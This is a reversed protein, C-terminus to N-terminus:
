GKLYGKFPEVVEAAVEKDAYRVADYLAAFREDKEARKCLEQPTLNKANETIEVERELMEHYVHRVRQAPTLSGWRAPRAFFKKVRKAVDDRFQRTMSQASMLQESEEAYDETAAASFNSFWRKLYESLARIAKYLVVAMFALLAILAVTVVTYIIVNSLVQVWKPWEFAEEGLLSWDMQPDTVQEASQTPTESPGGVKFLAFFWILAAKLADGIAKQLPGFFVALTLIGLFGWTMMQNGRVMRKAQNGANNRVSRFNVLVITAVVFFYLAYGVQATAARYANIFAIIYFIVGLLLGVVILKPQIYYIDGDNWDHRSAIVTLIAAFGGLVWNWVGYPMLFGFALVDAAMALAMLLPKRKRVFGSVAYGAVACCWMMLAGWGWSGGAKEAIVCVAPLVLLAMYSGYIGLRMLKKM